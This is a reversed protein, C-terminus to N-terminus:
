DRKSDLFSGLYASLAIYNLPILLAWLMTPVKAVTWLLLIGLGCQAAFFAGLLLWFRLSGWRRRTTRITDGFVLATMAAFGLWKFLRDPVTRTFVALLAVAAVTGVGVVVYLLFDRIRGLTKRRAMARQSVAENLSM